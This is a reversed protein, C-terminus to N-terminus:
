QYKQLNMQKTTKGESKKSNEIKNLGELLFDDSYKIEIAGKEILEKLGEYEPIDEQIPGPILVKKGLNKTHRATILTGSKKTAEVVITFDSLAAIIRNRKRLSWSKPEKQHIPIESLLAGNKEIMEEALDKNKKPYIELLGNGLVGITRGEEALAGQHSKTDIGLALGSIVEGGQDIVSKAIEFARNKGEQTPERTGVMAVSLNKRQELKGKWYLVPPPDPLEFLKKPYMESDMTLININHNNAQNIIREAKELTKERGDLFKEARKSSIKEIDKIENRSSEWADELSEFQEYLKKITKDGVGKIQTAAIWYKEKM